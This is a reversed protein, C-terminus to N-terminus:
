EIILRFYSTVFYYDVFYVVVVNCVTGRDFWLSRIMTIVNIDTPNSNV